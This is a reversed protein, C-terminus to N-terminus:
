NDTIDQITKSTIGKLAFIGKSKIYVCTKTIINEKYRNELQSRKMIAKRLEKTM